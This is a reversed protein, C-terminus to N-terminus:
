SSSAAGSDTTPSSPAGARASSRGSSARLQDLKADVGDPLLLNDAIAAIEEAERWARELPALEGAM